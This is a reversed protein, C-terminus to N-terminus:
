PGGQGWVGTGAPGDSASHAAPCLIHGLGEALREGTHNVASSLPFCWLLPPAPQDGSAGSCPGTYLPPASWAAQPRSSMSPGAPEWVVEWLMELDSCHPSHGTPYETSGEWAAVQREESPSAATKGM